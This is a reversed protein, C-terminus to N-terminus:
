SRAGSSGSIRGDAYLFAGANWTQDPAGGPEGSIGDIWEPFGAGLANASAVGDLVRRAESARGTAALAAAHFGGIFPWVAGNHYSGAANRWRPDQRADAFPDLMRDEGEASFSHSWTRSPYPEAVGLAGLHDLIVASRDGAMGGLVALLNALVDCEDLFRGYSISALYHRRDPRAAERYLTAALTHPFTADAGAGEVLAGLDTDPRPWLLADIRRVLGDAEIVPDTGIRGALREGARLAWAFLANVHLVKGSRNLSSDMWDGAAPSDIAGWGTVDQHALWSLARAAAPWLEAALPADDWATVHEDLAVVLWATADTAGAEGWDAYGREPWVVNPVRGLPSADAAM